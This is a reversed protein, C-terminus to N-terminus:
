DGTCAAIITPESENRADFQLAISVLAFTVGRATMQYVEKFDPHDKGIGHSALESLVM